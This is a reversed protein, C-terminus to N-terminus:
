VIMSLRVNNFNKNLKRQPGIKKTQIIKREDSDKKPFERIVDEGNGWEGGTGEERRVGATVSVSVGGRTFGPFGGCVALIINEGYGFYVILVGIARM